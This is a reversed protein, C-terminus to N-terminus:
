AKFSTILADLVFEARAQLPRWQIWRDRYQVVQLALVGHLAALLTQALFDM